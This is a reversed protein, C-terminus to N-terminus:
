ECIMYFYTRGKAKGPPALLPKMTLLKSNSSILLEAQAWVLTVPPFDKTIIMRCAVLYFIFIFSAIIDYSFILILRRAPM